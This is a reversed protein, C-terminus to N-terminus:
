WAMIKNKLFTFLYLALGHVYFMGIYVIAFTVCIEMVNLLRKSQPGVIKWVKKEIADVSIRKKSCVCLFM